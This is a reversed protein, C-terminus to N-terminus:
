RLRKIERQNKGDRAKADKTASVPYTFMNHVSSLYLSLLGHIFLRAASLSSHNHPSCTSLFLCTSLHCPYLEWDVKICVALQSHPWQNEKKKGEKKRPHRRFMVRECDKREGATRETEQEWLWLWDISLMCPELLDSNTVWVANSDHVLSEYHGEKIGWVYIFM